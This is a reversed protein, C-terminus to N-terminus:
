RQEGAAAAQVAARLYAKVKAMDLNGGGPAADRLRGEADISTGIKGIVTSWSLSGEDGVAFDEALAEARLGGAIGLPWKWLISGLEDLIPVVHEARWAPTAVMGRGGSADILVDTAIGRYPALRAALVKPAGCEALMAPGVQLVHRQNPWEAMLDPSPWSLNWQFGHCRGGARTILHDIVEETPPTDSAYHLLNLVGRERSWITPWASPM